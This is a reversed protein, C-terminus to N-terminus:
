CQGKLALPYPTPPKSLPCFGNNLELTFIESLRIGDLFANNKLM